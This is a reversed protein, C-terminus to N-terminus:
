WWPDEILNKLANLKETVIENSAIVVDSFLLSLIKAGNVRVSPSPNGIGLFGYFFFESWLNYQIDECDRSIRELFLALLSVYM